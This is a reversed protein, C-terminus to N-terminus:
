RGLNIRAGLMARRPDVYVTPNRYTTSFKNDTAIAEEATSNLVNLVDAMLDVSGGTGIRITKSVRLDLLSQGSAAARVAAVLDSGRVQKLLYGAAGAM